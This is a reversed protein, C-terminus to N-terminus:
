LGPTAEPHPSTISPPPVNILEYECQAVLAVRSEKDEYTPYNLCIM